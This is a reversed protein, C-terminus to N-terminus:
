RALARRRKPEEEPPPVFDEDEPDIVVPRYIGRESTPFQKHILAKPERNPGFGDLDAARIRAGLAVLASWRGCRGGDRKWAEWCRRRHLGFPDIVLPLLATDYATSIGCLEAASQLVPVLRDLRAVFKACDLWATQVSHPQGVVTDSDTEPDCKNASTTFDNATADFEAGVKAYNSGAVESYLQVLKPYTAARVAVVIDAREPIAESDRRM